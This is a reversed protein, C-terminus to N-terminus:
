RNSHHMQGEPLCSAGKPCSTEAQASIICGGAAAMIREPRAGRLKEHARLCVDNQRLAAIMMQGFSLMM